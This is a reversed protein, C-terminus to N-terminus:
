DNGRKELMASVEALRHKDQRRVFFIAAVLGVLIIFDTFLNHWYTTYVGPLMKFVQVVSDKVFIQFSIGFLASFVTGFGGAMPVGGIICASISQLGYIEGTIPNGTAYAATFCLGAVGTFLGAIAYTLVKTRITNIGSAYANRENAGIAFLHNVLTTRKLLMWVLLAVALIVVSTPLFRFLLRDYARNIAPDVHGGPKPQIALNIGRIVFIMAFSELLAPIRLYSIILGNLSALLMTLVLALLWGLWVPVGLMTPLNVALVNAFSLQAGISIDIYGMFMLFAQAMTVLIIPTYNKFLSALNNINFFAAPGRLIIYAVLSIMMLLFGSYAPSLRLKTLRKM